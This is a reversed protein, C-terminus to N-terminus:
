HAPHMGEPPSGDYPSLTMDIGEVFTGDPVDVSHDDSGEYRAFPEGQQPMKMAYFRAALYYKGGEPLYLTYYGDDDTLTSAFDPVRQMDDDRYAIVFTGPVHEGEENLLRGKVGTDTIKEAATLGQFFMPEELERLNFTCEYYRGKRVRISKQGITHDYFDGRYLPGWNAGNARKRAVVYYEGPPLELSFSGDEASGHSVYDTIGIIGMAAARSEIKGVYAYVYAKEVPENTGHMLVKGRVGSRKVKKKDAAAGNGPLVLGIMVAILVVLRVRSFMSM